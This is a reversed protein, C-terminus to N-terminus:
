RDRPLPRRLLQERGLESVVVAADRPADVADQLQGPSQTFATTLPKAARTATMATPQSTPRVPVRPSPAAPTSDRNDNKTAVGARSRSVRASASGPNIRDAGSM